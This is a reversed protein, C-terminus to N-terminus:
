SRGGALEQPTYEDHRRVWSGTRDQPVGDPADQFEEQRGFPTIDLEPVVAPPVTM